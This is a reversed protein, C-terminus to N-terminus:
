GAGGLDVLHSTEDFVLITPNPNVAVTTIGCNSVQYSRWKDLDGLLVALGVSLSGEHAVVAVREAPHCDVIEQLAGGVRMAFDVASEGDTPSVSLDTRWQELLVQWEAQAEASIKGELVGFNYERLGAHVKVPLRLDEGIIQATDM